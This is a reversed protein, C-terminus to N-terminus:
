SLSTAEMKHKNDDDALATILEEIDGEMVM